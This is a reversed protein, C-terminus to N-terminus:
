MEWYYDRENNGWNDDIRKNIEDVNLSKIEEFNNEGERDWRKITLNLEKNAKEDRYIFNLLSNILKEDEIIYESLIYKSKEEADFDREGDPFVSYDTDDGILLKHSLLRRCLKDKGKSMKDIFINYKERTLYNKKLLWSSFLYISDFPLTDLFDEIFENHMTDGFRFCRNIIHTYLEKHTM